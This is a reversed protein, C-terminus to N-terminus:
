EAEKFAPGAAGGYGSTIQSGVESGYRGSLSSLEAGAQEQAAYFRITKIDPDERTPSAPATLTMWAGACGALMIAAVLLRAAAAELKRSIATRMTKIEEMNM